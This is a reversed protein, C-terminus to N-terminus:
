SVFKLVGPPSKGFYRGGQANVRLFIYKQLRGNKVFSAALNPLLETESNKAKEPQRKYKAIKLDWPRIKTMDTNKLTIM